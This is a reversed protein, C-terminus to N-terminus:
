LSRERDTSEPSPEHLVHFIGELVFHQRLSFPEVTVEVKVVHEVAHQSEESNGCKLAPWLLCQTCRSTIFQM